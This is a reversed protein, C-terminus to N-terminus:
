REEARRLKEAEAARKAAIIRAEDDRIKQALQERQEEPIRELKKKFPM